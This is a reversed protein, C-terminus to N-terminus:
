GSGLAHRDDNRIRADINRREHEPTYWLSGQDFHERGGAADRDGMLQLGLKDFRKLAFKVPRRGPHGM